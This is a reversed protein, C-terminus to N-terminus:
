SESPGMAFEYPAVPSLPLLRAPPLSPSPVPTPFPTSASTGRRQPGSVPHHHAGLRRRSRPGQLGRGARGKHPLQRDRKRLQSGRRGTCAQRLAMARNGSLAVGLPGLPVPFPTLPWTPPVMKAGDRAVRRFGLTHQYTSLRVFVTASTGPNASVSVAAGYRPYFAADDTAAAAAAAATAM